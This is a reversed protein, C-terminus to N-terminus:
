DEVDEVVAILRDHAEDNPECPAFGIGCNGMVLTTIGHNAAPSCLPDWTAQGDMHSHVDVWGPTLLKGAADIEQRGPGPVAGVAAIRGGSVALDGTFSPKGTGDVITANRIVLDYM